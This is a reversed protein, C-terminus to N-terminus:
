ITGPYYGVTLPTAQVLLPTTPHPIRGSAEEALCYTLERLPYRSEKCGFTFALGVTIGGLLTRIPRHSTMSHCTVVM